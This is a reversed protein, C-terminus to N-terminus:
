INSSSQIFFLISNLLLIYKRSTSFSYGLSNYSSCSSRGNKCCLIFVLIAHFINQLYQYGDSFWSNIIFFVWLTSANLWLSQCFGHMLISCLGLFLLLCDNQFSKRSTLSYELTQFFLPFFTCLYLSSRQLLLDFFNTLM